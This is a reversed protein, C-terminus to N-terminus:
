NACKLLYRIHFLSFCKLNQSPLDTGSIVELMNELPVSDRFRHIKCTNTLNNSQNGLFKFNTVLAFM